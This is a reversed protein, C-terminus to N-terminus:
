KVASNWRLTIAGIPTGNHDVIAQSIQDVGNERGEFVPESVGIAATDLWKPEDSQDYDHTTHDAAILAGHRDMVMIQEIRGGSSRVDTALRLSLPSSMVTRILPGPNDAALETRWQVDRTKLDPPPLQNASAISALIDPRKVLKAIHRLSSSSPQNQQWQWAVFGIAAILIASLLIIRRNM